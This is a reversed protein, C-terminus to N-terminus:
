AKVAYVQIEVRLDSHALKAETCARAPTSGPLVWADWVGNMQDFTSIDSLWIYASVIDAKSVGAEALVADLQDLIDKTQGAVDASRDQAVHGATVVMQGTMPWSVAMSMRPNPKFRQIM